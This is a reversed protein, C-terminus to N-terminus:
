LGRRTRLHVVTVVAGLIGPGLVMWGAVGSERGTEGMPAPLADTMPMAALAQVDALTLREIEEETRLAPLGAIWSAATYRTGGHPSLAHYALVMINGPSGPIPECPALPGSETHAIPWGPFLHEIVRLSGVEAMGRPVADLRLRFTYVDGDVNSIVTGVVIERASPIAASAPPIPFYPCEALVPAAAATVALGALALALVSRRLHRYM